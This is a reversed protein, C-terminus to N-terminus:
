AGPAAAPLAAAGPARRACNRRAAPSPTAVVPMAGGNTSNSISARAAAATPGSCGPGRGGRSPPGRQTNM